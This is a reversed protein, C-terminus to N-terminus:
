VGRQIGFLGTHKGGRRAHEFEIFIRAPQQTAEFQQKAEALTGALLGELRQNRAMGVAYEVGDQQECWAM